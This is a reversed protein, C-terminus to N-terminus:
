YNIKKISKINSCLNLGNWNFYGYNGSFTVCYPLNYDDYIFEIVSKGNGEGGYWHFRSDPIGDGDADDGFGKSDCIRTTFQIGNDLEVLFRDNCYGYWIGMACCYDGNDFRRVGTGTITDVSSGYIAGASPMATLGSAREYTFCSTWGEERDFEQIVEVSQTRGVVTGSVLEVDKEGNKLIPTVTVEYESNERLGTLYCTGKEKDNQFVYFINEQYPAETNVSIEYERGNEKDWTVELCSVSITNVAVEGVSIEIIVEEESSTDTDSNKEKETDKKTDESTNKETDTDTENETETTVEANDATEPIDITEAIDFTEPTDYTRRITAVDNTNIDLRSNDDTGCGGLMISSGIAALISIAVVKSLLKSKTNLIIFKNM